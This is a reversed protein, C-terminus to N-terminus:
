ILFWVFKKYREARKEERKEEGKGGDKTSAPACMQFTSYSLNSNYREARKEERKGGGKTSAPACTQFTSHSM